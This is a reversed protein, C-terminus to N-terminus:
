LVDPESGPGFAAAPPSGSPSRRGSRSVPLVFRVDPDGPEHPDNGFGQSDRRSTGNGRKQARRDAREFPSEARGLEVSVEPESVAGAREGLDDWRRAPGWSAP